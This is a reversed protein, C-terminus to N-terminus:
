KLFLYSLKVQFIRYSPGFRPFREIGAGDLYPSEDFRETYAIYLFSKPRFNYALLFYLNLRRDIGSYQLILRTNLDRNFHYSFKSRLVEYKTRDRSQTSLNELEVISRNYSLEINLRDSARFRAASNYSWQYGARYKGQDHGVQFHFDSVDNNRLVGSYTRVPYISRDVRDFEKGEYLYGSIVWYNMFILHTNLNLWRTFTPADLFPKTRYNETWVNLNYLWRRIGINELRPAVQVWFFLERFDNYNYFGIDSGRYGPSQERYRIQFSFFDTRRAAVFFLSHDFGNKSDVFSSLGEFLIEWYNNLRMHGDIGFQRNYKGAYEKSMAILGIQSKTFIDRSLRFINYYAQPKTDEPIEGKKMRRKMGVDNDNLVHLIGTNWKGIKGNIKLGYVPENMRRSYFPTCYIQFFRYSGPTQFISAGETFFPRKEPLYLPYRTLNILDEDAEIQAFDPNVTLTAKLNTTIGYQVDLGTIGNENKTRFSSIRDKQIRSTLYPLVELNLGSKINKLNELHGFKSVRVGDDRTVNQWHSYEKKRPIVRMINLGWVSEAKGAFKITSFPIKFEAIWGDEVVNSEVWWVGNWSGDYQDDEFRRGDKKTGTPNTGFQFANMHDHFTDFSLSIYESEIFADRSAINNKIKDPESDFCKIGVYLNEEDYLFYAETKETAPEGEEPDRQIFGTALGGHLWESDNLIGDIRPAPAKTANVSKFSEQSFLTHSTVANFLFCFVPITTRYM